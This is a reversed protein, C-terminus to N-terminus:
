MCQLMFLPGVLMAVMFLPRIYFVVMLIAECFNNCGNLQVVKVGNYGNLRDMRM